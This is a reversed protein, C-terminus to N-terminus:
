LMNLNIKGTNNKQCNFYDIEQNSTIHEQQQMSYLIWEHGLAATQLTTKSVSTNIALFLTLFVKTFLTHTHVSIKHKSFKLNNILCSLIFAHDRRFM